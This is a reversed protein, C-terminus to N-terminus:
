DDLDVVVVVDLVLVAVLIVVLSSCCSLSMLMLNRMDLVADCSISLLM